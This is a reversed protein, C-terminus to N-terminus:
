RQPVEPRTLPAVTFAVLNAAEIVHVHRMWRLGINQECYAPEQVAHVAKVFTLPYGSGSWQPLLLTVAPVGEHQLCKFQAKIVSIPQYFIM